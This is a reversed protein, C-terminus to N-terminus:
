SLYRIVLDLVVFLTALVGGAYGDSIARAELEGRSWGSFSGYAGILFAGLLAGAGVAAAVSEMLSTLPGIQSLLV